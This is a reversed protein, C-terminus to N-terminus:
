TRAGGDPPGPREPPRRTPRAHGLGAGPRSRPPRPDATAAEAEGELLRRLDAAVTEPRGTVQEWSYRVVQFGMERLAMERQRDRKIAAWGGHAAAGDLEVVVRQNRWLADVRMRGVKANVEPLPLRASECLALFREELVSLTQALQPMHSRLAARMAKSGPRGRGLVRELDRPDLLSRYDAEAIARRLQRPTLMSGVDVLTRAVSTVPLSRCETVETRRSHHVRVEPLSRRRGPVTLHIRKPEADILSWVWAATTHSFAAGPGAYLLAAWLRGWLSLAGHGLAYVRPHVRHLRGAGTWRSIAARSMGCVKLQTSSLVGHQREALRVLAEADVTDRHALRVQRLHPM